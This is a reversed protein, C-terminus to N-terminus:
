HVRQWFRDSEIIEIFEEEIDFYNVLNYVLKPFDINMKVFQEAM